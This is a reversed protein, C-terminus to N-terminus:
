SGSMSDPAQRDTRQGARDRHLDYKQMKGHLTPRQLGLLRAAHTQNGQTRCLAESLLTREVREVLDDYARDGRYSDLYRAVLNALNDRDADAGPCAPASDAQGRPELIPGLDSAQVPFGRTFIMVRQIAHQLQRVNGPWPHAVLMARADESIPPLEVKLELASRALFYDILEPIDERRERLPPVEITVVNLRHFLDERFRGDAIAAELDRNTAALVRVDVRVTQNSGLPEFAREQLLRLIKAQIAPPVDGIEDLFVTGGHAQEFKGVRRRSAGTFAGQVYGFLESELLTEPIAVCNVVSLPADSRLSHQYIARAVLEKGTGSEGRILVTADTPAVRGIAKYLAQMKPGHGVIAEGAPAPAEPGLLIHGQMLRASELAREITALIEDPELPKLQYDFAGRKTAEVATQMTGRGTVIIVPLKPRAERLRALAELGSMGPLCVDMVVLDVPEAQARRIAEEARHLTVAEYGQEVLLMEFAALVGPEDDVVFIRSM